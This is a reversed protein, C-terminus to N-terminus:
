DWDDDDTEDDDPDANKLRDNEAKLGDRETTLSEIKAKLRVIEDEASAMARAREGSKIVAGDLGLQCGCGGCVVSRPRNRERDNNPLLEGNSM